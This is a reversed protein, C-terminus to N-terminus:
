FFLSVGGYFQVPDRTTASSPLFNNGTAIGDNFIHFYQVGGYLSWSGYRRPIFTLPVTVKAGTTILGPVGPESYFETGPLTIFSPFELAAPYGNFVYKPIFGLEFNFSSDTSSVTAKNELEVFLKVYPNLSAKGWPTVNELFHDSYKLQFELNHPPEYDDVPSVFLLYTASFNFDKLFTVDIGAIFDFENWYPTSTGQKPTPKTHVSNWIGVTLGVHNIFAEPSGKYVEMFVLLLSQWVMGEDEVILGRPTIYYNSFQNQLLVNFVSKEPTEVPATFTKTSEGALALSPAAALAVSVALPLLLQRTTKLLNTKM